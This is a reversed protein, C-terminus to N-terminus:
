WRDECLDGYVNKVCVGTTWIHVHSLLQLVEPTMRAWQLESVYYPRLPWGYTFGDDYDDGEGMLPLGHLSSM